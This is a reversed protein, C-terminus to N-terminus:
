AAPRRAKSQTRVTGGTRQREIDRLAAVLALVVPNDGMAPPDADRAPEPGLLKM